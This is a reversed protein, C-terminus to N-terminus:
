LAGGIAVWRRYQCAAADGSVLNTKAPASLFAPALITQSM